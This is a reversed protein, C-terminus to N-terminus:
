TNVPGRVTLPVSQPLLLLFVTLPSQVLGPPLRSHTPSSNTCHSSPVHTPRLLNQLQLHCSKSVSTVHVTLSSKLPSLLRNLRVLLIAAGNRMGTLKVPLLCKSFAQEPGSGTSPSLPLEASDCARTVGRGAEANTVVMWPHIQVLLVMLAPCRQTSPKEWGLVTISDAGFTLHLTICLCSSASCEARLSFLVSVWPLLSEWLYLLLGSRCSPDVVAPWRQCGVTNASHFFRIFSDWSCQTGLTM